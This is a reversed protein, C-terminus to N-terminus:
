IYFKHPFSLIMRMRLVLKMVKQYSRLVKVFRLLDKRTLGPKGSDKDRYSYRRLKILLMFGNIVGRWNLINM